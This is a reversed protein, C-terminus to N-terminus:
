PVVWTGLWRWTSSQGAKDRSRAYINRRGKFSPDFEVSMTLHLADRGETTLFADSITCQPNTATAGRSNISLTGAVGAERMLQVSRANRDMAIACANAKERGFQILIEASLINDSGNIDSFDFDFTQRLGSGLYPRVAVAEPPEEDSATWTGAQKWGSTSGTSHTARIYINKQGFFAPKFSITVNRLLQDWGQKIACRNNEAATQGVLKGTADERGDDSHLVIGRGDESSGPTQYFYSVYCGGHDQLRDNILLDVRAIDYSRDTVAVHFLAEPGIGSSPNVGFVEPAEDEMWHFRAEEGSWSGGGPAHVHIVQEYNGPQLDPSANVAVKYAHEICPATKPEASVELGESSGPAISLSLPFRLSTKASCNVWYEIHHASSNMPASLAIKFPARVKSFDMWNTVVTQVPLPISQSGCKLELLSFSFLGPRLHELLPGEIYASFTEGDAAQLLDVNGPINANKPDKITALLTCNRRSTSVGFQVHLFEVYGDHDDDIM